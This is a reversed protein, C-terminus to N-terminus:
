RKKSEKKRAPPARTRADIRTAMCRVQYAASGVTTENLTYQVVADQDPALQSLKAKQGDITVKTGFTVSVSFYVERPWLIIRSSGSPPPAWFPKTPALIIRNGRRDIKAIWGTASLTTPQGGYAKASVSPLSQAESRAALLM